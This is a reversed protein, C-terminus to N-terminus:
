IEDWVESEKELRIAEERFGMARYFALADENFRYVDLVTRGCRAEKAAAEAYRFLAKGIGRRRHSETVCIDDVLLFDEDNLNRHGRRRRVWAFLFGVLETENGDRDLAACVAHRGNEDALASFFANESYSVAGPRFLDPRGNEHLIQIERQLPLLAAYDEPKMRRILYKM